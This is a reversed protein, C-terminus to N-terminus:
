VNLKYNTSDVLKRYKSLDHQLVCQIPSFFCNRSGSGQFQRLSKKTFLISHSSSPSDDPLIFTADNLNARNGMFREMLHGNIRGTSIALVTIYIIWPAKM